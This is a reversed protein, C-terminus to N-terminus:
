DILIGMKRMLYTANLNQCVGKQLKYDISMEENVIQIEFCLNAINEPYSKILDGLILDHTAILGVSQYKILQELLAISGSQKDRSNTGKLIEDLLIFVHRGEELETIIEKLRKLEAYFFSEKRALSDSTRISSHLLVPSFIFRGAFVPAGIMALVYNTGVTRLFTSKGSMNAGTIICYQKWGSISIDNTVCEEQRILPHGLGVAKLQFLGETKPDPYIFGANNNAFNALSSLADIEAMVEFWVPVIGKYRTKWKDVAALLQFNFLFLGNLLVAALINLNTDMWNLLQSLKHIVMSPPENSGNSLWQKQDKLLSSKFNRDEILFLFKAYKSLISMKSSLVSQAHITKRAYSSVILLQLIVFMVPFHYVVHGTLSLVILLNTIFPLIIRIFNVFSGPFLDGDSQLWETLDHRDKEACKQGFFVLQMQQRFDKDGSLEVIAKQREIISERFGFANNFYEALRNKGFITVSRNICQFLSNKGFLDLDFSYSHDPDKFEDGSDFGSFDGDIAKIENRCIQILRILREVRQKLLLDWWTLILFLLLSLIALYFHVINISILYKYFLIMLGIFSFFRTLPLYKEKKSIKEIEEEIVVIQMEYDQRIDVM